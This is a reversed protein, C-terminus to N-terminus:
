IRVRLRATRTSEEESVDAMTSPDLSSGGASLANAGERLARAGKVAQTVRRWNKSKGPESVRRRRSPEPLERISVRSVRSSAPPVNFTLFPDGTTGFTDDIEPITVPLVTTDTLGVELDDPAAPLKTGASASAVAARQPAPLAHPMLMGGGSGGAGRATKRSLARLNSRTTERTLTTPPSDEGRRM